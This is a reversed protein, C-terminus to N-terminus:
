CPSTLPSVAGVRPSGGGGGCLASDQKRLARAVDPTRSTVPYMSVRDGFSIAQNIDPYYITHGYPQELYGRRMTTTTYLYQSGIRLTLLKEGDVLDSTVRRYRLELGSRAAEGGGGGSGSGGM